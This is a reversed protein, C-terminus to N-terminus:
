YSEAVLLGLTSELGQIEKCTLRDLIMDLLEM